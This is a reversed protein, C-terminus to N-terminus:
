LKFNYWGEYPITLLSLVPENFANHSFTQRYIDNLMKYVMYEDEINDNISWMKKGDWRYLVLMELDPDSTLEDLTSDTKSILFGAEIIGIDTEKSFKLCDVRLRSAETKFTDPAIAFLNGLSFGEKCTM